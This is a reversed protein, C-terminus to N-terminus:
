ALCSDKPPGRKKTRAAPRSICGSSPTERVANSFVLEADAVAVDGFAARFDAGFFNVDGVVGDNRELLADNVFEVVRNGHKEAFKATSLM